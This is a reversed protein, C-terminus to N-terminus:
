PESEAPSQAPSESVIRLAASGIRGDSHAEVLVRFAGPQEPLQFRITARGQEDTRLLPDWFLTEPHGSEGVAQAAEGAAFRRVPFRYADLEADRQDTTPQDQNAGESTEAAAANEAETAGTARERRWRDIVEDPLHQPPRTRAAAYAAPEVPWNARRQEVPSNAQAQEVPSGSAGSGAPSTSHAQEVGSGREAGSDTLFVAAQTPASQTGWAGTEHEKGAPGPVDGAGARRSIDQTKDSRPPVVRYPTFPVLRDGEGRLHAPDMLIVGIALCSITAGAVSGWLHAGALVKLLGLMVVALVLGVSALFALTGLTTLTRTYGTRYEALNEEYQTQIAGLNDFLLPPEVTGVPCPGATARADPQEGASPGRAPESASASDRRGAAHGTALLLDLIMAADPDNASLLGSWPLARRGSFHRALMADPVLAPRREPEAPLAAESVVSAGLVSSVPVGQEDRVSIEMEATEGAIHPGRAPKFRINLGRAPRRFVLRDAVPRPPRDGYDFVVLRVVGAASPTPPLVVSNIKGNEASTVLVQQGVLTDGCWATVVLPLGAQSARLTFELPEGPVFVKTGTNIAVRASSLAPPLRPEYKPGVTPEIIKLRYGEGHVPTFTFRGMGKVQTQVLAVENDQNDVLLARLSLPIGQRTHATFYVRNELEPALVGGEPYFRVDIGDAVIPLPSSVTARGSQDGVRVDIRGEGKEIQEPLTFEVALSGDDATRDSKEFVTRGDVVASIRLKTGATPQGARSELRIQVGVAQGPLYCQQDLEVAARPAAAPERAVAFTLQEPAFSDDLARAVLTYTGEDADPPLRCVGNGVGASTVGELLSGPVEEGRPNLVEFQIPFERDARLGCGSLSLSRYCVDRGPLYRPKDTSLRTFYRPPDVVLQAEMRELVSDHVALVEMRAEGPLKLGAPLRVRLRGAADAKEKRSWLREAQPSYVVLEVQAPVARGTVSNTQIYYEAGGEANVRAPGVVVLRLHEAAIARLRSWNYLYAGVSLLLLVVALLGLLWDAARFRPSSRVM